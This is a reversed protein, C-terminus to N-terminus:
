PTEIDPDLKPPSKAAYSSNHLGCPHYPQHNLDQMEWLLSYLMTGM